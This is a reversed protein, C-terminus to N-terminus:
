PSFQRLRFFASSPSIPTLVQYEADRIQPLYEVPQWSAPQLSTTSELVFNTAWSSWVVKLQNDTMEVWLRPQRIEHWIAFGFGPKWDAVSFDGGVYLNTGSWAVSNAVSIIQGWPIPTPPRGPEPTHWPVERLYPIYGWLSSNLSSWEKGDWRAVLYAAVNDVRPFMGCVYLGDESTTLALVPFYKEVINCDFGLGPIGRGLAHWRDGDWRGINNLTVEGSRTFSGGAILDRRFFALASVNTVWGCYASGENAGSLGVGLGSWKQGNWVAINKASVSGVADFNGGVYLEDGRAALANISGWESFAGPIVQWGTGTWKTVGLKKNGDSFILPGAAYLFDDTATVAVPEGDIGEGIPLWQSGNWKAVHNAAIGGIETFRGVVILDGKQEAMDWVAGNRPFGIRHWRSGDWRGIGAVNTSGARIQYGAAFVNTGIAVLKYPKNFLGQFNEDGLSSWRQGDWLSFGQATLDGARIFNGATYLLENSWLLANVRLRDIHDIGVLEGGVPNWTGSNLEYLGARGGFATDFFTQYPGATGGAFLRHEDGALSTVTIELGNGVSSWAAGNWRAINTTAASGAWTFSGGAILENGRILLSSIHTPIIEPSLIEEPGQVGNQLPAWFFGN